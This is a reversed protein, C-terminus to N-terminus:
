FRTNNSNTFPYQTPYQTFHPFRLLIHFRFHPFVSLFSYSIPLATKTGAITLVASYASITPMLMLEKSSVNALLQFGNQYRRM